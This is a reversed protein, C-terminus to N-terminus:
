SFKKIVCDFSIVKGWFQTSFYKLQRLMFDKILKLNVLFSISLMRKQKMFKSFKEELLYVTYLGNFESDAGCCNSM